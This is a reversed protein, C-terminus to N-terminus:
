TATALSNVFLGPGSTEQVTLGEALLTADEDCIVGIGDYTLGPDATVGEIDTSELIVEGGIVVVGVGQSDQVLLGNMEVQSHEFVGGWAKAGDTGSTLTEEITFDSGNLSSNQVVLSWVHNRVLDVREATVTSDNAIVLGRGLAGDFGVPITHEITVDRLTAESQMILLGRGENDRLVVDEILATSGGSVDIGTGYAGTAEVAHTTEVLADSLELSSGQDVLLGNVLNDRVELGSIVMSSDVRIGIGRGTGGTKEEERTGSVVVNTLDATAEHLAIGDTLTDYIRLDDGILHGRRLVEIGRGWLGNQLRPLIREITVNDLTVQAGDVVLGLDYCDAILLNSFSLESFGGPEGPETPPSGVVEIGRGFKGTSVEPLTDTITVGDFIGTADTAVIGTRHNGVLLYNSGQLNAGGDLALGSGLSGDSARPRTDWVEVNDLVGTGGSIALGASRSREITVDSGQITGNVVAIGIGRESEVQLPPQDRAEDGSVEDDPHTDRVDIRELFLASDVSHLGQCESRVIEVNRLDATSGARAYIGAGFNDDVRDCSTEKVFMGDIAVSAGVLELGNNKNDTLILESGSLHAGAELRIGGGGGFAFTTGTWTIAATEGGGQFALVPSTGLGSGDLVVQEACRGHVVLGAHSQDLSLAENYTGASLILPGTPHAELAESVSGFPHEPSGDGSGQSDVVFGQEQLEVWRAESCDEDVCADGEEIQGEPCPPESCGVLCLAVMGIVGALSRLFWSRALPSCPNDYM